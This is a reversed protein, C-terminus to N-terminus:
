RKLKEIADLYCQGDIEVVVYRKRAHEVDVAVRGDALLTAVPAAQSVSVKESAQGGGAAREAAVSPLLHRQHVEELAAATQLAAEGIRALWQEVLAVAAESLSHM